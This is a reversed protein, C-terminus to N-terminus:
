TNKIELSRIGQELEDVQIDKITLQTCDVCKDSLECYGFYFLLEKRAGYPCNPCLESQLEEM